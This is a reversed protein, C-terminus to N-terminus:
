GFAQGTRRNAFWRLGGGNTFCEVIDEDGDGDVDAVETRGPLWTGRWVPKAEWSSLAISPSLLNTGAAAALRLASCRCAWPGTLIPPPVVVDGGQLALIVQCNV